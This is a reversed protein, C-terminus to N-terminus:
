ISVMTRDRANVEQGDAMESTYIFVTGLVVILAATLVRIVLKRTLIHANRSRPPKKMVDHDVPEVGLSQAPPGDMIIDTFIRAPHIFM